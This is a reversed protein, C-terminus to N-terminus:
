MRSRGIEIAVRGSLCATGVLGITQAECCNQTPRVPSPTWACEAAPLTMRSCSRVQLAPTNTLSDVATIELGYAGVGACTEFPASCAGVMTMVIVACIAIRVRM